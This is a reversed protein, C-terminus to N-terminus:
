GVNKYKKTAVNEENLSFQILRKHLSRPLNGLVAILYKPHILSQFPSLFITGTKMVIKLLPTTTQCCSVDGKLYISPHFSIYKSLYIPQPGPQKQLFAWSSSYYVRFLDPIM